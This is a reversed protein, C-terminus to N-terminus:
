KGISEINEREKEKKYEKMMCVIEIKFSNCCYSPPKKKSQFKLM